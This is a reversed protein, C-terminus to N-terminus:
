VNADRATAFARVITRTALAIKFHNHERASAGALAIEAADRFAEDSAKRGALSREAETARWPKTAIGGLALRAARITDGHLDLVVAASALAFEYSARDRV